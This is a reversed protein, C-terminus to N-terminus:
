LSSNSAALSYFTDSELFTVGMTVYTHQTTPNYCRYGKQHVDYGLFLCHIACPDLKRHQNNHHHVFAVCGFIRPPLMLVIPLSMPQCPRYRLRSDLFKQPCATLSISPRPLLMLGNTAIYTLELYCFELLKSSTNIRASQLVMKSRFRPAHPRM